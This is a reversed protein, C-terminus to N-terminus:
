RGDLSEGGQFEDDAGSIAHSKCADKVQGRRCRSDVETGMLEQLWESSLNQSVSSKLITPMDLKRRAPRV